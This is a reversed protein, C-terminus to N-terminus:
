GINTDPRQCNGGTSNSTVGPVCVVARESINIVGIEDGSLWALLRNGEIEYRVNVVVDTATAIVTVNQIDAGRVAGANRAATFTQSAANRAASVDLSGDATFDNVGNSRFQFAGAVASSEAAHRVQRNVILTKSVETAMSLAFFMLPLAILIFWIMMAGRRRRAGRQASLTATLLPMM